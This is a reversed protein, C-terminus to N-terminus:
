QKAYNMEVGEGKPIKTLKEEMEKFIKDRVSGDGKLTDFYEQSWGLISLATKLKVFDAM